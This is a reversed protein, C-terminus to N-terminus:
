PPSTTLSAWDEILAFPILVIRKCRKCKLELGDERVKAMLQGCECRAEADDTTSATDPKSSMDRRINFSLVTISIM